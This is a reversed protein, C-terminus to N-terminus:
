NDDENGYDTDDSDSEEEQKAAGEKKIGTRTDEIDIKDVVYDGWQNKRGKKPPPPKQKKEKVTHMKEKQDKEKDENEADEAEGDSMEAWDKNGDAAKKEEEKTDAM